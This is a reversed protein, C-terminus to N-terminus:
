RNAHKSIAYSLGIPGGWDQVILTIDKLDLKEILVNLNKAHEEPLYSWEMPKDSLGFGIHDIAICRYKKSLGKVLHRYLFSWTPNGHVMVIPPGRGEDIYHMKGMELQLFNSKFPYEERDIWQVNSM